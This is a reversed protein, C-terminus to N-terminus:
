KIITNLEKLIEKTLYRGYASHPLIFKNFYKDHFLYLNEKEKRYLSSYIRENTIYLRQLFENLYDEKTKGWGLEQWGLCFFIYKSQWGYTNFFHILAEYRFNKISEWIEGLSANEDFGFFIKEEPLLDTNSKESGFPNLNTVFMKGNSLLDKFKEVENIIRYYGNYTKNPFNKLTAVNLGEKFGNLCTYFQEDTTFELEGKENKKVWEGRENYGMFWVPSLPTGYGINNIAILRRGFATLEM